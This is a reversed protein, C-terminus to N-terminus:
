GGASAFTRGPRDSVQESTKRHLGSSTEGVLQLRGKPSFKFRRAGAGDFVIILAHEAEAAMAREEPKHRHCCRADDGTGGVFGRAAITLCPLPAPITSNLPNEFVNKSKKRSSFAFLSRGHNSALLLRKRSATWAGIDSKMAAIAGCRARILLCNTASGRGCPPEINRM